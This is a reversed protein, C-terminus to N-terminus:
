TQEVMVVLAQLQDLATDEDQDAVAGLLRLVMDAVYSEDDRVCLAHAHDDREPDAYMCALRGMGHHAVRRVTM